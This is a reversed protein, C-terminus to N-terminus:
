LTTLHVAPSCPASEHRPSARVESSDETKLEVDAQPRKSAARGGNPPPVVDAGRTQAEQPPPRPRSGLAIRKTCKMLVWSSSRDAGEQEFAVPFPDDAKRAIDRQNGNISQGRLLPMERAFLGDSCSLPITTQCAERARVLGLVAALRRRALPTTWTWAGHALSFALVVLRATNM